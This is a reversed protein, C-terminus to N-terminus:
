CESARLVGLTEKTLQLSLPLALDTQEKLVLDLRLLMLLLSHVAPVDTM